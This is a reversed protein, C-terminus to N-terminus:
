GDMWYVDPHYLPLSPPPIPEDHDLLSPEIIMNPVDIFWNALTFCEVRYISKNQHTYALQLRFVSYDSYPLILLFDEPLSLKHPTDVIQGVGALYASHEELYTSLTTRHFAHLQEGMQILIHYGSTRLFQAANVDEYAIVDFANTDQLIEVDLRLDRVDLAPIHEWLYFGREKYKQIRAEEREGQKLSPHIHMIKKITTEPYMTEMTNTQADWWSVCVSLDFYYTIYTLLDSQNVVILQVEKGTRNVFSLIHKIYHLHEYDEDPQV